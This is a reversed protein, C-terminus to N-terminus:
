RRRVLLPQAVEGLYGDPDSLTAQALGLGDPSLRTRCDMHVWEGEPMRLLTTTMTPPISLWEEMPLALSLGNASDAVILARALGTPKEGAILPLRVRTWVRATGGAGHGGGTFRWEVAEGYGWGTLGPFGFPVAEDPPPPPAFPEGEAPPEPGTAIHWARAAVVARGDAVLCAESLSVQRGPRIQSVEVRVPRRPIPGLFDVSIRALRLGPGATADIAHALLATPPGGHQARRDWPSETARTPEYVDDGAPLYFAETMASM